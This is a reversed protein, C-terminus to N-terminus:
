NPGVRYPHVSQLGGPKETRLIRWPLFVPTPQWARRWLVKGVWPHFGRRKCRGANAPPNKVVLAVQSAGTWLAFIGQEQKRGKWGTGSHVGKGFIWQGRTIATTSLISIILATNTSHYCYPLCTRKCPPFESVGHGLQWGAPSPCNPDGGSPSVSQCMCPSAGPGSPQRIHGTDGEQTPELCYAPCLLYSLLGKSDVKGMAPPAM